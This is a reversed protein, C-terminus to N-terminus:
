INERSTFNNPFTVITADSFTQSIDVSLIGHYILRFIERKAASNARFFSDVEALSLSKRNEFLRYCLLILLPDEISKTAYKYIVKANSLRPQLRIAEESIIQLIYGNQRCIKTLFKLQQNSIEGKRDTRLFYVLYKQQNRNVVFNPKLIYDKELFSYSLKFVCREYGTVKSDIELLYIYDFELLSRWLVTKQMKFSFFKGQNNFHGRKLKM